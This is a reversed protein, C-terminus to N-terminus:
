LSGKNKGKRNYMQLLELASPAGLRAGLTQIPRLHTPAKFSKPISLTPVKKKAAPPVDLEGPLAILGEVSHIVIKEYIERRLRGATMEDLLFDSAAKRTKFLRIGKQKGQKGNSLYYKEDGLGPLYCAWFELPNKEPQDGPMPLDQNNNM